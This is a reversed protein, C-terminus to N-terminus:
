YNCTHMKHLIYYKPVDQLLVHSPLLNQVQAASLMDIIQDTVSILFIVEFKETIWLYKGQVVNEFSTIGMRVNQNQETKQHHCSM